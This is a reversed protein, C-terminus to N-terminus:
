RIAYVPDTPDRAGGNEGRAFFGGDAAAEFRVWENVGTRHAIRWVGDRREFRDIYRGGMFRDEYPRGGAPPSAGYRHLSTFYAETWATEGELRVSIPGLQHHSAVLVATIEMARTCFESSPGAFGGHVHTADPHFCSRLLAEDRRDIARCYRMVVEEIAARSELREIRDAIMSLEAM